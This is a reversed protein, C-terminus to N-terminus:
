IYIKFIGILASLQIYEMTNVSHNYEILRLKSLINIIQDISLKKLDEILIISNIYNILINHIETIIDGLSLGHLTKINLIKGHAMMLSDNILSGIIINMHEQRPYGISNNINKENIVNYAMSVSQLMNIVKRMDGRSRKIITEIGSDTLKINECESIQIIKTKIMNSEIPSFRFRTCRSQLAPNINQIYNCILCFRTNDTYKEVIQRLIAQADPTMADAEDLIVLKFINEREAINTGFFVNQSIVFRKIKDRVVDIRRDDSANLEMVMCQYYKGYLERAMASILSTKGTGSPGYFLLHPLCRNKIFTKLTNRIENHSMVTDITSPRYKEIWPLTSIHDFNIEKNEESM